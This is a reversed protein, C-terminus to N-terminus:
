NWQSKLRREISPTPTHRVQNENSMNLLFSTQISAERIRCTRIIVLLKKLMSSNQLRLTKHHIEVAAM